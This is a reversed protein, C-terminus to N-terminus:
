KLKQQYTTEYEQIKQDAGKGKKILEDKVERGKKSIEIMHQRNKEKAEESQLKCKRWGAKGYKWM